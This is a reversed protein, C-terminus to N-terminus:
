WLRLNGIVYGYGSSAETAKRLRRLREFFLFAAIVREFIRLIV